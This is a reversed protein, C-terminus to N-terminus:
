NFRYIDDINKGAGGAKGSHSSSNESLIKYETGPM